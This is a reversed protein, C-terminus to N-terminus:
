KEYYWIEDKDILNLVDRAYKEIYEDRSSYDNLTNNYDEIQNELNTLSRQLSKERKRLNNIKLFEFFLVIICISIILVIIISFLKVGSYTINFSFCSISHQIFCAIKVTM